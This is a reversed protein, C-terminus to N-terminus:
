DVFYTVYIPFWLGNPMTYSGDSKAESFQGVSVYEENIRLLCSGSKSLPIKFSQYADPAFHSGPLDFINTMDTWGMIPFTTKSRAAGRIQVVNGIRRVQLKPTDNRFIASQFTTIDVWGTDYICNCQIVHNNVTFSTLGENVPTFTTTFLGNSNTKGTRYLEGNKYVIVDSNNVPIGRQTSVKVTLTISQSKAVNPNYNSLSLDYIYEDTIESKSHSHSFDSIDAKEHSHSFDSIDAKEHSHSFDSIDAKEHSHSFDTIDSKSHAHSFNTIDGKSHSHSFDSIDVKEHSHSFDSIDVKEHSHSFDSIDVKEHSHSFDGIKDKSITNVVAINKNDDTVLVGKALNLKGGNTINGHNHSVDAKETLKDNIENKTNFFKSLIRVLDFELLKKIPDSM